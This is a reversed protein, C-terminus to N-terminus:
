ISRAWHCTNGQLKLIYTHGNNNTDLLQSRLLRMPWILNEDHQSVLELNEPLELQSQHSFVTLVLMLDDEGETKRQLHKVYAAQVFGRKHCLRFLTEDEVSTRLHEFFAKQTKSLM